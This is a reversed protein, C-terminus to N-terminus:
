DKENSFIICIRWNGPYKDIAAGVDIVVLNDYKGKEFIFLKKTFGNYIFSLNFVTDEPIM